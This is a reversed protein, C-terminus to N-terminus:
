GRGPGGNARRSDPETGGTRPGPMGENKVASFLQDLDLGELGSGAVGQGRRAIADFGARARAGIEERAVSMADLVSAALEHGSMSQHKNDLFRMATVEGQAGLTVEVARDKSRVTVSLARMEDRVKLLEAQHRSFEAMAEELQHQLSADM